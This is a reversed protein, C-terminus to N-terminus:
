TYKPISDTRVNKPVSVGSKERALGGERTILRGIKM